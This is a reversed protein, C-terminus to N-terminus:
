PGLNFYCWGDFMNKNIPVHKQHVYQSCVGLKPSGNAENDDGGNFACHLACRCVGPPADQSHQSASRQICPDVENQPQIFEVLITYERFEIKHHSSQPHLRLHNTTLNITPMVAESAILMEM